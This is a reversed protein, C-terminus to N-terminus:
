ENRSLSTMPILNAPLPQQAASNYFSREYCWFSALINAAHVTPPYLHFENRPDYLSTRFRRAAEAVM